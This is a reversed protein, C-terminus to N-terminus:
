FIEEIKLNTEMTIILGLSKFTNLIGQKPKSLTMVQLETSLQHRTETYDSATERKRITPPRRVVVQRGVVGCVESIDNLLYWWAIFAASNDSRKPLWVAM